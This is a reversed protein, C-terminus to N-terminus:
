PNKDEHSKFLRKTVYWNLDAENVYLPNMEVRDSFNFNVIQICANQSSWNMKTRLVALMYLVLTHLFYIESISDEYAFLICAHV